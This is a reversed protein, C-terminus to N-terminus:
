TMLRCCCCCCLETNVLTVFLGQHVEKVLCLYGSVPTTSKKHGLFVEVFGFPMGGLAGDEKLCLEFGQCALYDSM